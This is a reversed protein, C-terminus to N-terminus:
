TSTSLAQDTCAKIAARFGINAITLEHENTAGRDACTPCLGQRETEAIALYSGVFSISEAHTM